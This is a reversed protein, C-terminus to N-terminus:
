LDIGRGTAVNDTGSSFALARKAAVLKELLTVMPHMCRVKRPATTM